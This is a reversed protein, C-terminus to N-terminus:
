RRGERHKTAFQQAAALVPPLEVFLLVVAALFGVCSVAIALYEWM